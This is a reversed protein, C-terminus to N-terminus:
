GGTIASFEVEDFYYTDETTEFVGFAVRAQDYNNSHDLTGSLPSSFDFTLTEWENSKTTSATKYIATTSDSGDLIGIAVTKGSDPAYVKITVTENGSSILEGDTLDVITLYDLGAGASTSPKIFEAVSNTADTPSDTVSFSPANAESGVVGTVMHGIQYDDYDIIGDFASEALSGFTVNDIYYTTDSTLPTGKSEPATSDAWSQPATYGNGWNPFINIQDYTVDDSLSITRDDGTATVFREVPNSFDFQLTNWGIDTTTTASTMVYNLDNSSSSDAIEMRVELGAEPSYFNLSLVTNSTDFPITYGSSLDIQAGAYYFSEDARTIDMVYNGSYQPDEVPVASPDAPNWSFAGDGDFADEEDSTAAGLTEFGIIRIIDTSDATSEFTLTTPMDVPIVAATVNMSAASATIDVYETPDAIAGNTADLGLVSIAFKEVKYIQTFMAEYDGANATVATDIALNTAGIQTGLTNILSLYSADKIVTHGNATANDAATNLIEEILTTNTSFDIAAGTGETQIESVLADVLASTIDYSDDTDSLDADSRGALLRAGVNILNAIKTSAAKFDSVDTSSNGSRMETEADFKLLTGDAISLNLVTKVESVTLGGAVLTSIPSIVTAGIPASYSVSVDEKTSTDTGGSTRLPSSSDTTTISFRGVSTTTAQIGNSLYTPEESDYVGNNNTDQWVSAGEIRGNIIVGNIVIQPTAGLTNIGATGGSGAGGGGLALGLSGIGGFISSVGDFVGGGSAPTPQDATLDQLNILESSLESTTKTEGELEESVKDAEKPVLLKEQLVAAKLDAKAIVPRAVQSQDADITVVGDRESTLPKHNTTSTM